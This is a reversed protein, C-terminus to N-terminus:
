GGPFIGVPFIAALETDTIVLVQGEFHHSVGNVNFTTQTHGALEATIEPPTAAQPPLFVDVPVGDAEAMELAHTLNIQYGDHTVGPILVLAVPAHNHAAANDILAGLEATNHIQTSGAQLAALSAPDAVHIVNLVLSPVSREELGEVELRRWVTTPGGKRAAPKKKGSRRTFLWNFM